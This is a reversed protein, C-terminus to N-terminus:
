RKMLLQSRSQVSIATAGSSLYNRRHGLLSCGRLACASSAREPPCTSIRWRLADAKTRVRRTSCRARRSGSPNSSYRPCRPRCAGHHPVQPLLQDLLRTPSREAPHRHCVQVYASRASSTSRPASCTSGSSTSPRGSPLISVLLPVSSLLVPCLLLSLLSCLLPLLLESRHSLPRQSLHQLHLLHLTSIGLRLHSTDSICCFLNIQYFIIIFVCFHLKIANTQILCAALIIIGVM